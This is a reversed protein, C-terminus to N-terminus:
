RPFRDAILNLRVGIFWFNTTIDPNIIVEFVENVPKRILMEARAFVPVRQKDKTEMDM